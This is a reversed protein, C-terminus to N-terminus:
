AVFELLAKHSFFSKHGSYFPQPLPWKKGVTKKSALFRHDLFCYKADRRWSQPYQVFEISWFSVPYIFTFGAVVGLICSGHDRQAITWFYVITGDTLMVAHFFTSDSKEM